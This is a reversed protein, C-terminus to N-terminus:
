DLSEQEGMYLISEKGSGSTLDDGDQLKPPNLFSKRHILLLALFNLGDSLLFVLDSVM